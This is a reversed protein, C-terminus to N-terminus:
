TTIFCNQYYSVQYLIILLGFLYNIAFYSSPFILIISIIYNLYYHNQHRFVCYFSVVGFTILLSYIICNLTVKLLSMRQTFKKSNSQNLGLKKFCRKTEDYKMHKLWLMTKPHKSSFHFLMILNFIYIMALVLILNGIIKPGFFYTFDGLLNTIRSKKPHFLLFAFKILNLGCILICFLQNFRGFKTTEVVGNHYYGTMLGWNIFWSNINLNSNSLLKM